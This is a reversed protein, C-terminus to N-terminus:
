QSFVSQKQWEDGDVMWVAQRHRLTTSATTDTCRKDSNRPQASVSPGVPASRGAPLQWAPTGAMETDPLLKVQSLLPAASLVLTELASTADLEADAASVAGVAASRPM